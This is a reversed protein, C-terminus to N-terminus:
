PWGAAALRGGKVGGNMLEILLDAVDHRDLVRDLVGKVVDVLALDVLQGVDTKGVAQARNQALIRVDDQDTLDPIALGSLDGHLRRQGTVQHERRQVGGVRRAGQKAEDVHADFAKQDGRRHDRDNGLTEYTLDTVAAPRRVRRRGLLRLKGRRQSKGDRLLKVLPLAAPPAILGAVVVADPNEFHQGHALLELAQDNGAGAVPLDHVGGDRAPQDGQTQVGPLLHSGTDGGHGFDQAADVGDSPPMAIAVLYWYRAYVGFPVSSSLSM